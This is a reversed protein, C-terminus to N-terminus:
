LDACSVGLLPTRAFSVRCTFIRFLLKTIRNVKATKPEITLM